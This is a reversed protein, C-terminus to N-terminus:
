DDKKKKKKEPASSDSEDDDEKKDDKDVQGLKKGKEDLGMKWYERSKKRKEENFRYSLISDALREKEEQIKLAKNPDGKNKFIDYAKKVESLAQATEKGTSMVTKIGTAIDALKQNLTKKPVVPKASNVLENYARELKIRDIRNQLEQNDLRQIDNREQAIQKANAEERKAELAEREKQMAEREKRLEDTAQKAEETAKKADKKAQSISAKKKIAKMAKKEARSLKRAPNDKSGGERAPGVGYRERGAPTLTGDYNRYKRTGWHMGKQGDHLLGDRALDDMFNLM